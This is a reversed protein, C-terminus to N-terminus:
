KLVELQLTKLEERLGSIARDGHDLMVHLRPPQRTIALIGEDLLELEQTLRRVIRTRLREYDDHLHSVAAEHDQKAQAHQQALAAYALNQQEMQGNLQLLQADREEIRALASAEAHSARKAELRQQEAEQVFASGVLGPLAFSRLEMLRRWIDPVSTIRCSEPSWVHDHLSRIARSSDWGRVAVMWLAATNILNTRVVAAQAKTFPKQTVPHELGTFSISAAHEIVQEDHELGADPVLLSALGASAPHARLANICVFLLMSWANTTDKHPIAALLIQKPVALMADHRALERVRGWYEDSPVPEQAIAVATKKKMSVRRGRLSYAYAVFAELSDPAELRHSRRTVAEAAVANSTGAASPPQMPTRDVPSQKGESRSPSTQSDLPLDTNRGDPPLTSDPM